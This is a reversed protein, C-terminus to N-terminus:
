AAPLIRQTLSVFLTGDATAHQGEAIIGLCNNVPDVFVVALTADLITDLQGTANDYEHDLFGAYTIACGPFTMDIAVDDITGTDTDSSSDYTRANMLWDGVEAGPTVIWSVASAPTATWLLPALKRM